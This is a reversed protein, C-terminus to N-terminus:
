TKEENPKVNGKEDISDNLSLGYKVYIQLITNKYKYDALAAEVAAKEALAEALKKQVNMLDISLRDVESVKKEEM